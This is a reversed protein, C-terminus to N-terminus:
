SVCIGPSKYVKFGLDLKGIFGKKALSNIDNDGFDVLPIALGANMSFWSRDTFTKKSKVSQAFSLQAILICLFTVYFFKM